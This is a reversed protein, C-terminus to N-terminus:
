AGQRHQGAHRASGKNKKALPWPATYVSSAKVKIKLEKEDKNHDNKLGIDPLSQAFHACSTQEASLLKELVAHFFTTM